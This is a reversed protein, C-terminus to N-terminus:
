IIEKQFLEKLQELDSEIISSSHKDLIPVRLTNLSQISKVDSFDLLYRKLRNMMVPPFDFMEYFVYSNIGYLSASRASTSAVSYVARVREKHSSYIMEASDSEDYVEFSALDYPINLKNAPHSKFLLIVNENKYLDSLALLIQNMTTIWQEVSIESVIKTWGLGNDFFFIYQIDQTETPKNRILPYKVETYEDHKKWKNSFVLYYDIVKKESYFRRETVMWSYFYVSVPYAGFIVYINHLIWSIYSNTNCERGRHYCTGVRYVISHTVEKRFKKLLFRVPLTTETMESIICVSEEEFTIKAKEKLFVRTNSIRKLVNWPLLEFYWRNTFACECDPLRIIYDFEELFHEYEVLSLYNHDILILHHKIGPFFKHFFLCLEYYEILETFHSCFYYANKM